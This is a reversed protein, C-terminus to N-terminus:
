NKPLEMVFFKKYGLINTLYDIRGFSGNGLDHSCKKSAKNLVYVIKKFPDTKVDRKRNLSALVDAQNHKSM